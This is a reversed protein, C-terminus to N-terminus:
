PEDNKFMGIYKSGDKFRYKGLGHRKGEKYIGKFGEGDEYNDEM